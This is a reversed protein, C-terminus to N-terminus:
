SFVTGTAIMQQSPIHILTWKYERGKEFQSSASNGVFKDGARILLSASDGNYVVKTLTADVSTDSTNIFLMNRTDNSVILKVDRIQFPDGMMHTMTINHPPDITAQITAVPAKNTNGGLGGAYASVVSAIVITVILMLMVGVVPSVADERHHSM